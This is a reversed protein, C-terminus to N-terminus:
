FLKVTKNKIMGEIQKELKSVSENPIKGKDTIEIKLVLRPPAAGNDADYYEDDDGLAGGRQRKYTKNM